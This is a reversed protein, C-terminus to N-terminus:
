PTFQVCHRTGRYDACVNGREIMNIVDARSQLEVSLVTAGVVYEVGLVNVFFRRTNFSPQVLAVFSEPTGDQYGIEPHPGSVNIYRITSPVSVTLTDVDTIRNGNPHQWQFAVRSKLTPAPRLVVSDIIWFQMPIRTIVGDTNIVLTVTPVGDPQRVVDLTHTIRPSSPPIPSPPPSSPPPPIVPQVPVTPTPPTVGIDQRPPETPSGGCGVVLTALIALRIIKM